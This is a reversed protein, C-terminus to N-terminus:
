GGRMVAFMDLQVSEEYIVEGARDFQRLLLAPRQRDPGISVTSTQCTMRFEFPGLFVEPLSPLGESFLLVARARCEDDSAGGTATDLFLNANVVIPEVMRRQQAPSPLPGVALTSMRYDVEMARAAELARPSVSFSQALRIALDNLVLQEQRLSNAIAFADSVLLTEDDRHGTIELLFGHGDRGRFFVAANSGEDGSGSRYLTVYAGRGAREPRVITEGPARIGSALAALNRTTIGAPMVGLDYARATLHRKLLTGGASRRHTSGAMARPLEDDAGDTAAWEAPFVVEFGGTTDAWTVVIPEVGRDVRRQADVVLAAVLVLSALALHKVRLRNVARLPPVLLRMIDALVRFGFGIAALWRSGPHWRRQASWLWRYGEILDALRRTM